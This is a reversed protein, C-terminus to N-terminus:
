SYSSVIQSFKHQMKARVQSVREGQLMLERLDSQVEALAKFETERVQKAKDVENLCFKPQKLDHDKTQISKFPELILKTYDYAADIRQSLQNEKWDTFFVILLSTMFFM